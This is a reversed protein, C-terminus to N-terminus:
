KHEVIFDRQSKLLNISHLLLNKSESLLEMYLMTNRTGTEKNKIRKLQKKKYTNIQDLILQQKHILEDVNDYKNDKMVFLTFDFLEKISEHLKGLEEVQAPVLEKHNNDIHDFSPKAIFTLCHAIERLYDLVQIYYHGTEVDNERIKTITESSSDKLSKTYQNLENISKLAKKLKKRDETILGNIIEGYNTSVTKLTDIVTISCKRIVSIEDMEM